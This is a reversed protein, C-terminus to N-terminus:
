TTRVGLQSGEQSALPPQFRLPPRPPLPRARPRPLLRARRRRRPPAAVPPPPPPARPPYRPLLLGQGLGRGQQHQFFFGLRDPPVLVIVRVRLVVFSGAARRRLPRM